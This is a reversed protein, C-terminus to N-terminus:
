LLAIDGDKEVYEAARRVLSPDDYFRGLAGNCSSCLLGRIKGTKHCHDVALRRLKKTRNDVASEEKVCIKCKGKQLIYMSNYEEVNMNYHKKLSTNLAKEPNNNRWLKQYERLKKKREESNGSTKKEQWYCNNKCFPLNIDVRALVHNKPKCEVDKVFQWFDQRWEECIDNSLKSMIWNYTTYLPSKERSGWDMPRTNHIHGHRNLRKYHTNCLDKACVPENCGVVSCKKASILM